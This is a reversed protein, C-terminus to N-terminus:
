DNSKAINKFGWTSWLFSKWLSSCRNEELMLGGCILSQFRVHVVKGKRKLLEWRKWEYKLTNFQLKKEKGVYAFTLSGALLQFYEVTSLTFSPIGVAFRKPSKSQRECTWLSSCLLWHLSVVGQMINILYIKTVFIRLDIQTNGENKYVRHTM